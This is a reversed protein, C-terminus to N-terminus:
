PQFLWHWSVNKDGEIYFQQKWSCIDKVHIILLLVIIAHFFSHSILSVSFMTLCRLVSLVQSVWYFYFKATNFCIRSNILSKNLVSNALPLIYELCSLFAVRQYSQPVDVVLAPSFFLM